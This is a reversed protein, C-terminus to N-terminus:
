FVLYKECKKAFDFVGYSAQALLSNEAYAQINM